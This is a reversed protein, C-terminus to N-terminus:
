RLLGKKDPQHHDGIPRPGSPVLLSSAPSAEEISTQDARRPSRLVHFSIEAFVTM